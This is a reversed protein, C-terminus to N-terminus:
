LIEAVLKATDHDEFATTLRLHNLVCIEWGYNAVNTTLWGIYVGWILTRRYETWSEDFSPPAAVGEAKLRELYHTLLERENARRTGISLATTILYNVDHMHHGRVMLQWDLLGGKNGPLLFTNGIHTDGHLLTFPLTQQHRHLAETGRRLEDSTTRLREVLERKFNENDIENQIVDPVYERMFSALEGEAHTQVFGFETSLRPSSWFRAHVRALNDLLARVQDVTVPTTANPFQAGRLTLDELLLGFQETGPDYAGGLSLPQEVTDLAPSLRNYYNVENSYLPGGRLHDHALKLILREPLGPRSGEAYDVDLVARAATSVMGDGYAKREIVRVADIRVDPHWPRIIPNLLDPTIDDASTPMQVTPVAHRNKSM